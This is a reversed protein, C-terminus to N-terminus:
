RTRQLARRVVRATAGVTAGYTRAITTADQGRAYALLVPLPELKPDAAAHGSTVVLVLTEVDCEAARALDAVSPARLGLHTLREREADVRRALARLEDPSPDRQRRRQLERGRAAATAWM